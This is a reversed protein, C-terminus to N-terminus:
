EEVAEAEERQASKTADLAAQHARLTAAFDEKSVFGAKFGESVHELSIDHGLNAAVIDTEYVVGAKFGEIVHELSIDHGLNAAVIDHKMAREYRGSKGEVIALNHRAYPNGGIAAEELHYVEKKENEEVGQGEGYMISLNFHAGAHGLAASKTWYQFAGDYDGEQHRKGGMQDGGGKEGYSYEEGKKM